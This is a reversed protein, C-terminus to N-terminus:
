GGICHTLFVLLRRVLGVRVVGDSQLDFDAWSFTEERILKLIGRDVVPRYPERLDLAFSATIEKEKRRWIAGSGDWSEEAGM